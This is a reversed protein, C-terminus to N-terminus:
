IYFPSNTSFEGVGTIGERTLIYVTGEDILQYKGTKVSSFENSIFDAYVTSGSRALYLNESQINYIWLGFTGELLELADCIALVEDKEAGENYNQNILAPILSTDVENVTSTDKINELIKNYNSLVGNHAVLWNGCRFPHSTDKTFQRQSSTPAQTHGLYMKFDKIKRAESLQINEGLEIVGPAKIMAFMGKDIFLGGYSFTGRKKNLNYLTTYREFETAGFIGCM